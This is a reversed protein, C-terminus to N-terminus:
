THHGCFPSFRSINRITHLPTHNLATSPPQLCSCHTFASPVWSGLCSTLSLDRTKISLQSGAVGVSLGASAILLPRVPCVAFSSLWSRSPFAAQCSKQQCLPFSSSPSESTVHNFLGTDLTIELKDFKIKCLCWDQENELTLVNVRLKNVKGRIIGFLCESIPSHLM